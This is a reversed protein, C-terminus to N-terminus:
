PPGATVEGMNRPEDPGPEVELFSHPLTALCQVQALAYEIPMRCTVVAMLGQRLKKVAEGASVRWRTLLSNALGQPRPTERSVGELRHRM